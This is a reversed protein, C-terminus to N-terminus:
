ENNKIKNWRLKMNIRHKEKTEESRKIGRIANGINQKTEESHKKGTKALAIRKIVEDTHRHGSKKIKNPNAKCFDFHWQHANRPNLLKHCYPCEIKKIEKKIQNPNAKCFDFHWRNFNLKDGIKHCHPCEVNERRKQPKGKRRESMLSKTKESAKKGIHNLSLKKRFASKEEETRYTYTNGGKGGYNINYGNPAYSNLEKIWFVEKLNMDDIDICVEIIEKKFNEKGYKKIALRLLKGSGYYKPKNYLDKGVYIKNNILNTTKYVIPNIM